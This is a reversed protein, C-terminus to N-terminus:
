AEAHRGPDVRHRRDGGGHLGEPRRHVRDGRRRFACRSCCEAPAQWRPRARVHVRHVRDSTTGMMAAAERDYSTARMAKGTRTRNVLFWLLVMLVFASVVTIIRLLAVHV